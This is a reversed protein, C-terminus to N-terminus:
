LEKCLTILEKAFEVCMRMRMRYKCIEIVDSWMKGVLAIVTVSVLASNWQM